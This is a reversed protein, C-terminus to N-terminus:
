LPLFYLIRHISRWVYTSAQKVKKNDELTLYDCVCVNFVKLFYRVLNQFFKQSTSINELLPM